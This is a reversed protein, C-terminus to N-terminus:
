ILPSCVKKAVIRIIVPDEDKYPAFGRGEAEYLIEFGIQKLAFILEEKDIFRRFHSNFIYAHKGVCEGKGYIDDRVSRVEIFFMGGAVLTSWANKLARQQQDETIAHLTFRSYCYDHQIQFLVCEGSFDECLFQASKMDTRSSIVSNLMDIANSSVDIGIVHIGSAAFFLSDRGNGCGFEILSKGTEMYQLAMRSFASEENNIAVPHNSYYSNWYDTDRYVSDAKLPIYNKICDVCETVSMGGDNKLIISPNVPFEAKVDLGAVDKLMGKRQRSYLGKKDRQSLIEVPVDLFVEVYREIYKRNWDRVSQFMAITCIIVTIGQDALTKCLISYKEARARRESESYGGGALQKLIDGDLIVVNNQKKRLEYYLASGITSKGAGALGTIWYVIGKQM